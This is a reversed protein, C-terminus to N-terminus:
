LFQLSVCKIDLKDFIILLRRSNSVIERIQKCLVSPLFDKDDGREQIQKRNYLSSKVSITKSNTKVQESFFKISNERRDCIM